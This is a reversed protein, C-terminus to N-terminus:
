QKEGVCVRGFGETKDSFVKFVATIAM